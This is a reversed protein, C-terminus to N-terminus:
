LKNEKTKFAENLFDKQADLVADVIYKAVKAKKQIYLTMLEKNIGYSELRNMAIRISKLDDAMMELANKENEM